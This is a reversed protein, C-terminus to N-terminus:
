YYSSLGKISLMDGVFAGLKWSCCAFEIKTKQINRGLTM